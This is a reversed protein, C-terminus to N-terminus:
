YNHENYINRVCINAERQINFTAEVHLSRVAKESCSTVVTKAKNMASTGTNKIGVVDTQMKKLTKRVEDIKETLCDGTTLHKTCGIFITDLDESINEGNQFEIKDIEEKM